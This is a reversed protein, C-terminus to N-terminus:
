QNPVDMQFEVLLNKSLDQYKEMQINGLTARFKYNLPLLIREVRGNQDFRTKGFFYWGGSYYHIDVDSLPKGQLNMVSVIAHVTYFLVNPNTGVNQSIEMAAHEWTARFKYANPLLEKIVLGTSYFDM